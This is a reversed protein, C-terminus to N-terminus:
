LYFRTVLTALSLAQLLFMGGAMTWMIGAPNFRPVLQSLVLGAGALVAPLAMLAYRGQLLDRVGGNRVWMAEALHLSGLTSVVCVIFVLAAATKRNEIISRRRSGGRALDVALRCLWLGVIALAAITAATLIYYAPSPLATDLSSFDGWFRRVWTTYLYSGRDSFLGSLYARASGGSAAEPRDLSTMPLQLVRTTVLWAGFTAAVGAGALVAARLLGLRPRSTRGWGLLFALALVPAMAIGYPKGLLCVGLALGAGLEVAKSPSGLMRMAALLCLAGGAIVLADNNFMATQQSLMPQLTVAAALAAGASESGFARRGVGFSALATVVGLAVSWLRMWALRLPAPADIAANIVAGPLYYAPSYGAASAAGNSRREQSRPLETASRMPGSVFAPRDTNPAAARNLLLEAGVLDESYFDLGPLPANRVPLQRHEALFESYAYHAAEDPGEFPPLVVTWLVGKAVALLVVCTLLRRGKGVTMGVLSAAVFGLLAVITVPSVWGPRLYSMRDLAIGLNGGFRASGAYQMHM